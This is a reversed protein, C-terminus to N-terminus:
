VQSLSLAISNAQTASELTVEMVISITVEGTDLAGHLNAGLFMSDVGILYGNTWMQPAVDLDQSIFGTAFDDAASGDPAFQTNYMAICGSAVVSKDTAYVLESQSQTCLQFAIMNKTADSIPDSFVNSDAYQVAINHVRLLTSKSVGLNVYSGLDIESQAYTGGNTTVGARIFFSDSKAM